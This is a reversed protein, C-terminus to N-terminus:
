GARRQATGIRRARALLAAAAISRALEDYRWAVGGSIVVALLLTFWWQVRHPAQGDVPTVFTVAAGFPLACLAALATASARRRMLPGFAAALFSALVVSGALVGVELWLDHATVPAASGRRSLAFPAVHALATLPAGVAAFLAGCQLRRFLRPDTFSLDRM